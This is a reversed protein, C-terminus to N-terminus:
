YTYYHKLKINQLIGVQQNTTIFQNTHFGAEQNTAAWDFSEWPKQIALSRSIFTRHVSYCEIYKNYICEAQM